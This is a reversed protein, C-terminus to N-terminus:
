IIEKRLADKDFDGRPGRRLELQDFRDRYAEQEALEDIRIQSSWATPMDGLRAGVYIREEKYSHFQGVDQHMLTAHGSLKQLRNVRQIDVTTDDLPKEYTRYWSGKPETDDRTFGAACALETSNSIRPTQMIEEEPMISLFYVVSHHPVVSKFKPYILGM